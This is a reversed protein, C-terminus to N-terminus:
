GRKRARAIEFGQGPDRQARTEGCAQRGARNKGSGSTGSDGTESRGCAKGRRGRDKPYRRSWRKRERDPEGSSTGVSGGGAVLGCRASSGCGPHGSEDIAERGSSRRREFHRTRAKSRGYRRSLKHVDVLAVLLLIRRGGTKPQEPEFFSDLGSFARERLADTSPQNLSPQNSSAQNPSPRNAGPQNLGLVSPGGLSPVPNSAPKAANEVVPPHLPEPAHAIKPLGPVPAGAPRRPEVRPPEVRAELRAELLTGCMGCFRFNDSNNEGCKPCIV